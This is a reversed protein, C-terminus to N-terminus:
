CGFGLGSRGLWIAEIVALEEHRQGRRVHGGARLHEIRARSVPGLTLTQRRVINAEFGLLELLVVTAEISALSSHVIWMRGGPRLVGPAERVIREILARGDNGGDCWPAHEEGLPTPVYPPNALLVDFRRRRVPAFLDGQRVDLTVGNLRANRATARVAAHESDVCVTRHGALAAAIGQVGSGCCVDLVDASGAPGRQAFVECLLRSDLAPVYVGPAPEIRPLAAGAALQARVRKQADHAPQAAAEAAVAAASTPRPPVSM